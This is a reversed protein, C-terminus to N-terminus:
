RHFILWDCSCLLVHLHCILPSVQNNPLGFGKIASDQIFCNVDVLPTEPESRDVEFEPDEEFVEVPIENIVDEDEQILLYDVLITSSESTETEPTQNCLKHGSIKGNQVRRGEDSSKLWCINQSLTWFRCETRKECQLQCDEPSPINPIKNDSIGFGAFNVDPEYCYNQIVKNTQEKILEDNLTGNSKETTADGIEETANSSLQGDCFKPGSVKGKVNRSGENSSKLWCSNPFVSFQPSNWTWFKFIHQLYHNSNMMFRGQVGRKISMKGSM